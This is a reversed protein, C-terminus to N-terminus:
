SADRDLTRPNTLTMRLLWAPSDLVGGDIRLLDLATGPPADPLQDPETSRSLGVVVRGRDNLLPLAAELAEVPPLSARFVVVDRHGTEQFVDRQEVVVNELGLVRIARRALRCRERSRDLLTVATKPHVIALPIGPLGVGAGVDLIDVPAGDWATAFVISDAIHRDILREGEEPGIGGADAAETALWDAFHGLEERQARTLAVGARGAARDLRDHVHKGHFM